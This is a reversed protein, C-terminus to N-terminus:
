RAEVSLTCEGGVPLTLPCVDSCNKSEKRAHRLVLHCVIIAHLLGERESFRVTEV